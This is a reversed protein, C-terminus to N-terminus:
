GCKEGYGDIICNKNLIIYDCSSPGIKLIDINDINLSQELHAKVAKIKSISKNKFWDTENDKFLVFVSSTVIRFLCTERGHAKQCDSCSVNGKQGLFYKNICRGTIQSNSDTKYKIAM